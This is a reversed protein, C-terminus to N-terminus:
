SAVVPESVTPDSSPPTAPLELTLNGAVRAWPTPLDIAIRWAVEDWDLRLSRSTSLTRFSRDSARFVLWTDIKV